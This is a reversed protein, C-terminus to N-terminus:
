DKYAVYLPTYLLVRKEKSPIGYPQVSDHIRYAFFEMPIRPDTNYTDAHWVAGLGNNRPLRGPVIENIRKNIYAILNPLDSSQISTKDSSSGILHHPSGVLGLSTQKTGGGYYICGPDDSLRHFIPRSPILVQFMPLTDHIYEAPQDVTGINHEEDLRSLIQQLKQHQSAEDKTPLDLEITGIKLRSIRLVWDVLRQYWHRPLQCDYMGIKRQSIYLYRKLTSSKKSM